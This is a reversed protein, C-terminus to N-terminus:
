FTISNRYGKQVEEGGDEGAATANAGTEKNFREYELLGLLSDDDSTRSDGGWNELRAKLARVYCALGVCGGLLGVCGIGLYLSLRLNIEAKQEQHIDPDEAGESGGRVWPPRCPTGPVCGSNFNMSPNGSFSDFVLDFSFAKLQGNMCYPGSILPKSKDAAWKSLTKWLQTDIEPYVLLHYFFKVRMAEKGDKGKCGKYWEMVPLVPKVDGGECTGGEGWPNEEWGEGGGQTAAMNKVANPGLFNTYDSLDETLNYGLPMQLLDTTRSKVYRLKMGASCGMSDSSSDVPFDPLLVSYPGAWGETGQRTDVGVIPVKFNIDFYLYMSADSGKGLTDCGGQCERAYGGESDTGLFMSARVEFSSKTISEYYSSSASWTGM